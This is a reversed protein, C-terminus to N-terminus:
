CPLATHELASTGGLIASLLTSKGSGVQGVVAYIQGRKINLAINRLNSTNKRQSVCVDGNLWMCVDGILWICM